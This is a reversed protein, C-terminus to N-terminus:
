GKAIIMEQKIRLVMNYFRTQTFRKPTNRETANIQKMRFLNIQEPFDNTKKHYGYFSDGEGRIYLYIISCYLM